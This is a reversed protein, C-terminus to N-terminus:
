MKSSWSLFKSPLHVRKPVMKSRLENEVSGHGLIRLNETSARLNLSIRPPPMGAYIRMM